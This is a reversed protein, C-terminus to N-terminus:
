RETGERNRAILLLALDLGEPQGCQSATVQEIRIVTDMADALTAADARRAHSAIQPELELWHARLQHLSDPPSATSDQDVSQKQLCLVIRDGAQQFAAQIRRRREEAPLNPPSPDSDLVLKATELANVTQEDHAGIDMASQLYRQATRYQGLTFAAKGAGVYAAPNKPDLSIVQRYQDLADQFDGAALFRDAIHLHLAADPPLTAASAILEAQAEMKQDHRLLFDVLELRTRRRNGDPDASWLGYIARHYYRLAADYNGDRAALRALQVNVEGDQPAREALNALYSRAEEYRDKGYQGSLILAKALSLEYTYNDPAYSLATRFDIIAADLNGNRQASLGQYFIQAALVGQRSTFRNVLRHVAVFGCIAVVLLAALVVPPKHAFEDLKKSDM